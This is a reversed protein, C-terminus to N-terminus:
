RYLGKIQGWTSSEVSVPQCLAQSCSAPGLKKFGQVDNQYGVGGCAVTINRANAASPVLCIEIDPLFADPGVSFAGALVPGSPCGGVALLLATATGANLFGNMPGFGTPAGAGALEVVDAEMAAM